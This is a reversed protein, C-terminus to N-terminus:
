PWCKQHPPPLLTSPDCRGSSLVVESKPHLGVNKIFLHTCPYPDVRGSSLIVESNPDLGVNKILLHSCPYPDVRGSSLIVESNPDLGVNKILLHSCPCPDVEQPSRKGELYCFVVKKGDPEERRCEGAAFL